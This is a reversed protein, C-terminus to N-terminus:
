VRVGEVNLGLWWRAVQVTHLPLDASCGAPCGASVRHSVSCRHPRYQVSGVQPQQAPWSTCSASCHRCPVREDGDVEGGVGGVDGWAGDSAPDGGSSEGLVVGGVAGAVSEAVDVVCGRLAGGGLTSSVQCLTGSGTSSHTVLGWRASVAVGAGGASVGVHNRRQGGSQWARCSCSPARHGAAGGRLAAEAVLVLLGAFLQEGRVDVACGAVEAPLGHVFAGLLEVGSM